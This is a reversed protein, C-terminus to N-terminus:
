ACAPATAVVKRTRGDADLRRYTCTERQYLSRVLSYTHPYNAPGLRTLTSRLYNYRDAKLHDKGPRHNLRPHQALCPVPPQSSTCHSTVLRRYLDTLSSEYVQYETQRHQIPKEVQM